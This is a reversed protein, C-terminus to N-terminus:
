VTIRKPRGSAGDYKSIQLSSTRCPRETMIASSTNWCTRSVALRSTYMRQPLAVHFKGVSSSKQMQCRASGRKRSKRTGGPCLRVRCSRNVHDYRIWRPPRGIRNRSNKAFTKADRKPLWHDDLIDRTRATGDTDTPDSAGYAVAVCQANPVPSRVDDVSCEILQVIVQQSIKDRDSQDCIPRM